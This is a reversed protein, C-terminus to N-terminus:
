KVKTRNFEAVLQRWVHAAEDNANLEARSKIQCVTRVVIAAKKPTDIRQNLEQSLFVRFAPNNCLIGAGKALSM